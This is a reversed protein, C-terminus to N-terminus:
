ELSERKEFDGEYEIDPFDPISGATEEFFGPPWGRAEAPQATRRPQFVLVLEVDSNALEDPMRLKLIGNEDVHATVQISHM